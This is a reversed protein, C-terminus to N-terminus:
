WRSVLHSSGARCLMAASIASRAPTSSYAPRCVVHPMAAANSALQPGRYSAPQVRRVLQTVATCSIFSTM